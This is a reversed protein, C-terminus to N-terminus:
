RAGTQEIKVGPVATSLLEQAHHRCAAEQRRIPKPWVFRLSATRKCDLHDCIM